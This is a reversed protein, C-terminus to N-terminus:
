RREPAANGYLSVDLERIRRRVDGAEEHRGVAELDEAWGERPDYHRGRGNKWEEVTPEVILQRGELVIRHSTPSESHTIWERRTIYGPASVEVEYLGPVLLMGPQYSESGDVLSVTATAPVPEVRFSWRVPKMLAATGLALVAAIVAAIALVRRLGKKVTRVPQVDENM